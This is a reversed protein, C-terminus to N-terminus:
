ASASKTKPNVPIRARITTGDQSRSDILLEGRLVRLREKMSILGLGRGKLAEEPEFGIGSDQVTLKVDSAGCIISVRFHRSGSHKIANQLAEQLVRFLCLSIDERLDEPINKFHCEIEVGQRESLEKCLGRAATALGFHELSFSHLGHSLARIDTGLDEVAKRTKGVKKRIKTVSNPLSDMLGDLNLALMALRQSIDDHLERAIRSREEEQADILRQSLTSLIEEALRRETIDVCSGIYGAFSDDAKYRPVGQGLVWRYEGDFRRLRYEIQYPERRDFAREYTEIALQRDEPHVADSWGKGLTQKRSRGTFELWRQNSYTSLGDMGLTWIMVPVTDAIFRFHDESERRDLDTQGRDMIMALVFPSQRNGLSWVSWNGAFLSGDRRLCRKDSHFHYTSGARLQGFLTQDRNADERPSLETWSKSRIEQESCGLMSCFAHNAFLLRGEIDAAVVGIPTSNFMERFVHFEPVVSKSNRGAMSVTYLM